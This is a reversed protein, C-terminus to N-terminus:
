YLIRVLIVTQLVFVSLDEDIGQCGSFTPNCYCFHVLSVSLIPLAFRHAATMLYILPDTIFQDLPSADRGARFPVPRVAHPRVTRM